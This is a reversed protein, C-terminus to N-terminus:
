LTFEKKFDSDNQIFWVLASLLGRKSGPKAVSCVGDKKQEDTAIFIYGNKAEPKFPKIQAKLKKFNIAM